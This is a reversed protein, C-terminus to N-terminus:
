EYRWYYYDGEYDFSTYEELLMNVSEDMDVVIWCPLDKVEAEVVARLADNQVYDITATCGGLVHLFLEAQALADPWNWTFENNDVWMQFTPNDWDDFVEGLNAADAYVDMVADKIDSIVRMLDSPGITEQGSCTIVDDIEIM